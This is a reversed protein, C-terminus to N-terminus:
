FWPLLGISKGTVHDTMRFEVTAFCALCFLHAEISSFLFCVLVLAYLLHVATGTDSPVTVFSSHYIM